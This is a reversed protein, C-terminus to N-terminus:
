IGAYSIILGANLAIQALSTVIAADAATGGQKLAELGARVALPSSTGSVIGKQGRASARPATPGSPSELGSYEALEGAPWKAPSLDVNRTPAGCSSSAILAAACLSPRPRHMRAATM